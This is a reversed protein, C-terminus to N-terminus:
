CISIDFCVLLCVSFLIIVPGPQVKREGKASFCVMVVMKM